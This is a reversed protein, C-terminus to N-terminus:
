FKAGFSSIVELKQEVFNTTFNMDFNMDISYVSHCSNECGSATSVEGLKEFEVAFM